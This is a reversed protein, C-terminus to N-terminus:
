RLLIKNIKTQLAPIVEIEFWPNKKLWINNRPSPHPLVVHGTQIFTQWKSALETIPEQSQLHWDIAFKGLFITFEINNLKSLLPKRWTSACRPEPPLDGSKGKGPYCFGMPIIAFLQSNYFQESNVGLWSRLREGSKDDFPIGKDHANLGPAQGAILIKSDSSVQILPKPSFPLTDECQTCTMISTILSELNKEVNLSSKNGAHINKNVKM